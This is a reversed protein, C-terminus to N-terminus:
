DVVVLVHTVMNGQYHVKCVCGRLMGRAALQAGGGPQACFPPAAVRVAIGAQRHRAGVGVDRTRSAAAHRPSTPATPASLICCTCAIGNNQDPALM